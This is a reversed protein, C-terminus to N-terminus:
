GQTSDRKECVRERGFMRTYERVTMGGLGNERLGNAWEKFERHTGTFIFGNPRFEYIAMSM